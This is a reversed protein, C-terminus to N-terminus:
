IDKIEVEKESISKHLIAFFYKKLRNSRENFFEEKPVRFKTGNVDIEKSFQSDQLLNEIEGVLWHNGMQRHYEIASYLPKNNKNNNDERDLIMFNGLTNVYNDRNDNVDNTKFYKEANTEDLNNAELHDLEIKDTIFRRETPKFKLINGEKSSRYLVMFLVKIKFDNVSDGYHWNSTWESFQVNIERLDDEKLCICTKDFKLYNINTIVRKTIERPIKYNKSM